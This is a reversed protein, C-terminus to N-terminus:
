DLEVPNMGCLKCLAIELGKWIVPDRMITTALKPDDVKAGIAWDTMAGKVFRHTDRFWPVIIKSEKDNKPRPHTASFNRVRDMLLRLLQEPASLDKAHASPSLRHLDLRDGPTGVLWVLNELSARRTVKGNQLEYAGRSVVSKKSWRPIAVTLGTIKMPHVRGQDDVHGVQQGVVFSMLHHDDTGAYFRVKPDAATFAYIRYDRAFLGVRFPASELKYKKDFGTFEILLSSENPDLKEWLLDRMGNGDLDQVLLCIKPIQSM